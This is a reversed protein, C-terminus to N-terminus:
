SDEQIPDSCAATAVQDIFPKINELSKSEWPKVM